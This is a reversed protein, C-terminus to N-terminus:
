TTPGLELFYTELPKHHHPNHGWNTHTDNGMGWRGVQGWGEGVGEGLLGGMERSGLRTTLINVEGRAWLLLAQWSLSAESVTLWFVNKWM